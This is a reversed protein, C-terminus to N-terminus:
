EAAPISFPCLAKLKNWSKKQCGWLPGKGTWKPYHVTLGSVRKGIWHVQARGEHPNIKVIVGFEGALYGPNKRTVMTGLALAM